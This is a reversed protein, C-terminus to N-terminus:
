LRVIRYKNLLRPDIENLKVDKVGTSGKVDIMCRIRPIENGKQWLWKREFICDSISGDSRPCYGQEESVPSTLLIINQNKANQVINRYIVRCCEFKKCFIYIPRPYWGYPVTKNKTAIGNCVQCLNFNVMTRNAHYKEINQFWKKECQRFFLKDITRVKYFDNIYYLIYDLIISIVDENLEM